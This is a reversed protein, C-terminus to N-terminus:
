RQFCLIIVWIIFFLGIIIPGYYCGLALDYMFDHDSDDGDIIILRGRVPEIGEEREENAILMARKLGLLMNELRGMRREYEHMGKKIPDGSRKVYIEFNIM